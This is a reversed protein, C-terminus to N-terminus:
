VGTTSRIWQRFTATSTFGTRGDGTQKISGAAYKLSEPQVPGTPM